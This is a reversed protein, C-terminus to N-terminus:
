RGLLKRAKSRYAAGGEVNVEELLARAADDRKLEMYAKAINLKMGADDGSMPPEVNKSDLSDNVVVQQTVVIGEPARSYEKGAIPSPVGPLSQTSTSSLPYPQDGAVPNKLRRRFYFYLAALIATFGLGYAPMNSGPRAQSMLPGTRDQIDTATKTKDASIVPLSVPVDTAPLGKLKGVERKSESMGAPNVTASNLGSPLTRGEDWAQQQHEYLADAKAMDEALIEQLSPVTLVVGQRLYFMSGQEFADPNRRLIAAMLQNQTFNGIAPTLGRAITWLNDKKVTQRYTFEGEGVRRGAEGSVTIAGGSVATTALAIALFLLRLRNM